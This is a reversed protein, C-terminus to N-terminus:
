TVGKLRELELQILKIEDDLVQKRYGNAILRRYNMLFFNLNELLEAERAKLAEEDNM